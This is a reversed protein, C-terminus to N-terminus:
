TMPLDNFTASKPLDAVQFRLGFGRIVRRHEAPPCHSTCIREIEVLEKIFPNQLFDIYCFLHPSRIGQQYM